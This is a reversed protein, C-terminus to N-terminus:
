LSRCAPPYQHEGLGTNIFVQNQHGSPPLEPSPIQSPSLSLAESATRCSTETESVEGIFYPYHCGTLMFSVRLRQPM